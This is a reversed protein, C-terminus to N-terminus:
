RPREGDGGTRGCVRDIGGVPQIHDVHWHPRAVRLPHEHGLVALVRGQAAGVELQRWPWPHGVGKAQLDICRRGARSVPMRGPASAGPRLRAWILAQAALRRQVPLLQRGPLDPHGRNPNDTLGVRLSPTENGGTWVFKKGNPSFAPDDSAFVGCDGSSALSRFNNGSLDVAGIDCESGSPASVTFRCNGDPSVDPATGEFHWMGGPGAVGASGVITTIAGTHTDVKRLLNIPNDHLM